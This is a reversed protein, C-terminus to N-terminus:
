HMADNQACIYGVFLLGLVNLALLIHAAIKAPETKSEKM